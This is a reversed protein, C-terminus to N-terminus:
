LYKIYLKESRLDLIYFLHLLKVGIINLEAITSVPDGKKRTNRSVDGPGGCSRRLSMGTWRERMGAVSPVHTLMRALAVTYYFTSPFLLCSDLSSDQRTTPSRPSGGRLTAIDDAIRVITLFQLKEDNTTRADAMM